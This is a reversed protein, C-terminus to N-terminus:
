CMWALACSVTTLLVLVVLVLLLLLVLVPLLLLLGSITHHQGQSRLM